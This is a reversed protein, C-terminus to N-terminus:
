VLAYLLCVQHLDHASSTIHDLCDRPSIVIMRRCQEVAKNQMQGGQEGKRGNKEKEKEDEGVNKGICPPATHLNISGISKRQSRLVVLRGYEEWHEVDLLFRQCTVSLINDLSKKEFFFIGPCGVTIYFVCCEEELRELEV